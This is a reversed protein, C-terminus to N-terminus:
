VTVEGKMMESKIFQKLNRLSNKYDSLNYAEQKKGSIEEELLYQISRLKRSFEDLAQDKISEAAQRIYRELKNQFQDLLGTLQLDVASILDPKVNGLTKEAIKQSLFPLGAMGVLPIFFSAGLLLAISSAGGMLLGAKINANGTQMPLSDVNETFRLVEGHFAKLKVTQKFSNSLGISVEKELKRLM